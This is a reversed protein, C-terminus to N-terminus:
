QNMDWQQVNRDIQQPNSSIHSVQSTNNLTNCHMQVVIIYLGACPILDWLNM